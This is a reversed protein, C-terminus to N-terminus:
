SNLWKKFDESISSHNLVDKALCGSIESAEVRIEFATFRTFMKRLRRQEAEKIGRDVIHCSRFKSM